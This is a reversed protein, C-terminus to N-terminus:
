PILQRPPLALVKVRGRSCPALMSPLQSIVAVMAIPRRSAQSEIHTVSREAWHVAEPHVGAGMKLMVESVTHVPPQVSIAAVGRPQPGVVKTKCPSSPVSRGPGPGHFM